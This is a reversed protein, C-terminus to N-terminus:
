TQKSEAIAWERRMGTSHQAISRLKTQSEPTNMRGLAYIAKRALAESNNYDLYDLRVQASWGFAEIIQKEAGFRELDRTMDEHRQHWQQRFLAVFLTSHTPFHGLAPVVALTFEVEAADRSAIAEELLQRASLEASQHPRLQELFQALAESYLSQFRTWDRLMDAKKHIQAPRLAQYLRKEQETM